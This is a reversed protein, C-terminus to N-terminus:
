GPWNDIGRRALRVDDLRQMTDADGIRIAPEFVRRTRLGNRPDLGLVRQRSGLEVSGYAVPEGMTQTCSEVERPCRGRQVTPPVVEERVVATELILRHEV